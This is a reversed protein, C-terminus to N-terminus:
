IKRFYLAVKSDFSLICPFFYTASELHIKEAASISQGIIQDALRESLREREVILKFLFRKLIEDKLTEMSVRLKLEDRRNIERQALSNLRDTAQRGIVVIGNGDPRNAQCFFDENPILRIEKRDMLGIFRNIEALVFLLDDFNQNKAM